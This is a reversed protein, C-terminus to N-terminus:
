IAGTEPCTTHFTLADTCLSSLTLALCYATHRAHARSSRRHAVKCHMDAHRHRRVQPTRTRGMPAAAPQPRGPCAPSHHLRRLRPSQAVVLIRPKNMYARPFLLWAAILGWAVFPEWFAYLIAPWTFGGGFNAKGPGFVACAVVIGIPLLAVRRDAHIDLARMRGRLSAYGTTAGRPSEWASSFYTPAFYGLQLGIVNVGIPVFQRIALAAAGVVIASLLWRAFRSCAQPHRAIARLILRFIARWACYGLSFM